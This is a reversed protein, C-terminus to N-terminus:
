GPCLVDWICIDACICAFPNAELTPFISCLLQLQKASGILTVEPERTFSNIDAIGSAIVNTSVRGLLLAGVFEFIAALQTYCSCLALTLSPTLAVLFYLSDLLCISESYVHPAFLQSLVVFTRKTLPFCERHSGAQSHSDELGSCDM